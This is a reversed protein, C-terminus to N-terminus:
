EALPKRLAENARLAPTTLIIGDTTSLNALAARAAVLGSNGGPSNHVTCKLEQGNPGPGDVKADGVFTADRDHLEASIQSDTIVGYSM